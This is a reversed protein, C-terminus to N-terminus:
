PFLVDYEDLEDLGWTHAGDQELAKWHYNTM